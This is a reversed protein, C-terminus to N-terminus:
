TKEGPSPADLASDHCADITAHADWVTETEYDNVPVKRQVADTANVALACLRRQDRAHEAFLAKLLPVASEANLGNNCVLWFADTAHELASKM